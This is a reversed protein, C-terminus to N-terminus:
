PEIQLEVDRAIAKREDGRGVREVVHHQLEEALVAMWDAVRGKVTQAFDEGYGDHPGKDEVEGGAEDSGDPHTSVGLEEPERVFRVGDRRHM